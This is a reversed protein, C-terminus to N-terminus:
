CRLWRRSDRPSLRGRNRFHPFNDGPIELGFNKEEKERRLFLGTFIAFNFAKALTFTGQTLKHWDM